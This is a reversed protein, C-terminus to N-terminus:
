KRQKKQAEDILKNVHQRDILQKGEDYELARRFATLAKDINGERLEIEGLGAYARAAKQDLGIASTYAQHANLRRDQKRHCDGLLTFAEASPERTTLAQLTPVAEDCRNKRVLDSLVSLSAGQSKYGLEAARAFAAAAEKKKNKLSNLAVGLDRHAMWLDPSLETARRFAEAAQAWQKNALHVSGLGHFALAYTPSLRLAANFDELANALNGSRLDVQGQAFQQKARLATDNPSASLEQYTAALLNQWDALTVEDSLKPDLYREVVTKTETTAPTPSPSPSPTPTTTPTPTPTPTPTSATKPRMFFKVTTTRNNVKFVKTEWFYGPKRAEASYEGPSLKVNLHGQEDTTSVKEGKVYIDTGPVDTIFLVDSREGPLLKQVVPRDPGKGVARLGVGRGAASAVGFVCCVVAIALM